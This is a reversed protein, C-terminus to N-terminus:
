IDARWVMADLGAGYRDKLVMPEGFLKQWFGWGTEKYRPGSNVVVETAGQAKAQAKLGEVLKKGAGTGRAEPHVFANILEICEGPRNAYGLMEVDPRTVGMMGLVSGDALEAVLYRREEISDGDMSDAVHTLIEDIEDQIPQNTEKDVVSLALVERLTYIDEPIPQRVRVEPSEQYTETIM